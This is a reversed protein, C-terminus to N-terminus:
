GSGAEFVIGTSRELAIQEISKCLYQHVAPCHDIKVHVGDSRLFNSYFAALFTCTAHGNPPRLHSCINLWMSKVFVKHKVVHLSPHQKKCESEFRAFLWMQDITYYTYSNLCNCIPNVARMFNCMLIVVRHNAFLVELMQKLSQLEVRFNKRRIRAQPSHFHPVIQSQPNQWDKPGYFLKTRMLSNGPSYVIVHKPMKEWNINKLKDVCLDISHPDWNPLYIHPQKAEVALKTSNSAGIALYQSGSYDQFDM